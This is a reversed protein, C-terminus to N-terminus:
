SGKMALKWCKRCLWQKFVKSYALAETQCRVCAPM